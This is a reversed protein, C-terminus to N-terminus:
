SDNKLERSTKWLLVKHIRRGRDARKGVMRAAVTNGLSGGKEM